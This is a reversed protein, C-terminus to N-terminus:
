KLCGEGTTQDANARATTRLEHGTPGDGLKKRLVAGHGPGTIDRLYADYDFTDSHQESHCGVCVARPVQAPLSVPQAKSQQQLHISAPGHCVECQVDVLGGNTPPAAVMALTSGGPQDFGTAHCHVCDLDYQKGVEVLTKWASAHHTQRWFEVQEAHCDGCESVGVYAAQGPAPPPPQQAASALNAKGAASDYAIKRRQIEPDCALKKNVAVQSMVFWNGDDPKRLPTAALSDREHQLAALDAKQRAVFDADADPDAEFRAIDATLRTIREDIAAIEEAARHEGIADTFGGAGRVTVDLRTLVQGRNAPQILWADDVQNPRASLKDPEPAGAGIVAFDIGGVQRALAKAQKRDMHLLGVVVQAKQRRLEAVAARAAAVPDGATVGHEAVLQPDVIGFVGLRVGGTEIVKPAETAVGASADLNAVQRPPAVRAPGAALDYPGLGVAAPRLSDAFAAAILEAKLQAQATRSPRPRQETYLLSGGDLYVVAPGAARATSLLAATRALDGLPDSTCGCPEIQGKIETTVFITVSGAGASPEGNPSKSSASCGVTVAAAIGAAIVSVQLRTRM